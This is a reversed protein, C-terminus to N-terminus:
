EYLYRLRPAIKVLERMFSAADDEVVASAAPPSQVANGCHLAGRRALEVIPVEGDRQERAVAARWRRIDRDLAHEAERPPVGRTPYAVHSGDGFHRAIKALSRRVIALFSQSKPPDGGHIRRYAARLLDLRLFAHMAAGIADVGRSTMMVCKARRDHSPTARRVLGCAEMREVIKSITAPALGLAEGIQRQTLVYGSSEKIAYLVDFRAPTLGFLAAMPKAFEVARLHARKLRFMVEHM